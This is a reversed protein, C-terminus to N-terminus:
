RPLASEVVRQWPLDTLPIPDGIDGVFGSGSAARFALMVWEGRRDKVLRGSYLTDETLLVARSLDFPGLLSPAAVAWVGGTLAGPRDAEMESSLCSFLMVAQGDVEEVQTVEVQGFGGPQSLPPHVEWTMLDPSTAHGVVGRDLRPGANRRATILMHWGHGEPDAFVWPDRWSEDVWDYDDLTEYWRPDAVVLPSAPDKQWTMLDDSTALGIQQVFGDPEDHAGTYYMHWRGNPARLVSGTWTAVADFDGPEGAVLADEVRDWSVLDRSVAHGVSARRHRLEPDHLARSAFLFFLHYRDGDDALWFDWVWSDALRLM